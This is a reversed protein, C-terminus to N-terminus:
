RWTQKDAEDTVRADTVKIYKEPEKVDIAKTGFPREVM